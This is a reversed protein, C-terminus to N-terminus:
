GKCGEEDSAEDSAGDAGSDDLSLVFLGEKGLGLDV